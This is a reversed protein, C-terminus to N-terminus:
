RIRSKNQAVESEHVHQEFTRLNFEEMINSVFIDPSLSEIVSWEEEHFNTIKVKRGYKRRIKDFNNVYPWTHLLVREMNIPACYYNKDWIGTRAITEGTFDSIKSDNKRTSTAVIYKHLRAKTEVALGGAYASPWFVIEAGQEKLKTWGDDWMIDFCIQIGIKGFDTQFVPPQIPGCSLGKQIEGETLHIKRYEGLSVGERDLVVSSNYAKGNESTYITSMELKESLSLQQQVNSFPFVEPLCIIDPNYTVIKEIINTIEDVMLQPTKTVLDMQSIGAVWVERHLKSNSNESIVSNASFGITGVSAVGTTLISKKIFNRRSSNKNM